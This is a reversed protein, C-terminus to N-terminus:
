EKDEQLIKIIEEAIEEACTDLFFHGKEKLMHVRMAGRIHQKWKRWRVSGFLTLVDKKGFFLVIRKVQERERKEEFFTFFADTERRFREVWASNVEMHKGHLYDVWAAVRSDSCYRWPSKKGIGPPLAACLVIGLVRRGQEHLMHLGQLAMATGTCYGLLVVKAYEKIEPMYEPKNVVCVDINRQKLREALEWFAEATGAAYPFCLVLKEGQRQSLWQVGELGNRVLKRITLCSYFDEATYYIGHKELDALIEMLTLSDVGALFVNEDVSIRYGLKKTICEWIKKEEPNVPLEIKEQEFVKELYTSDTKGNQTLPIEIQFILKSPVSYYPLKSTLWEFLEPLEQEAMYVGVLTNGVKGVICRMVGPHELMVSEIQALDIRMGHIKCQRDARGQYYLQGDYGLVARDGTYYTKQTRDASIAFRESHMGVYGEGVLPGSIVLEGEVGPPLIKGDVGRITATTWSVPKGIPIESEKGDCEYYTVDITCETPGYLNHLRTEPFMAYFRRVLETSLAEGSCFVDKLAPLSWAGKEVYDLFIGLVSPVFHITKVNHEAIIKVLSAPNARDEDRVLSVTGGTMLPLFYEWMSVDFTYAAKQLVCTGCQYRQQMWLLRLFLSRHSIMVAKPEGTSGSTFMEYALGEDGNDVITEDIIQHQNQIKLLWEEDLLVQYYQAMKELRKANERPSIPLFAAGCKWVGYLVAPLWLCNHMKIAIVDGAKVGQEKLAYAVASAKQGLEEYTMSEELFRVAIKKKGYKCIQEEILKPVTGAPLIVNQADNLKNWCGWDKETLLSIEGIEVNELGQEVIRLIRELMAEAEEKSYCANQYLAELRLGAETENIFIRLPIEVNLNPIERQEEGELFPIHKSSRYSVTTDYYTEHMQQAQQYAGMSFSMHRMMDYFFDKVNQCFAFFSQGAEVKMCVPITNAKMGLIRREKRKRNLLIRGVAVEKSGTVGSIYIGLAAVLFIETTIGQIKGIEEMRQYLEWPVQREIRTAEIAGHMKRKMKWNEPSVKLSVKHFWEMDESCVQPLVKMYEMFGGTKEGSGEVGTQLEEYVEEYRKMWVAVSYGDMLLHHVKVYLEMWTEDEYLRLEYLPGDFFSFPVRMWESLEEMTPRTKGEWHKIVIEENTEYPQYERNVRVKLVDNEEIAKRLARSIVTREYKGSFTVIGGINCLGQNPFSKEVALIQKQEETFYLKKM